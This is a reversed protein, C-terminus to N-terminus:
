EDSVLRLRVVAPVEERELATCLRRLAEDTIRHRLDSLDAHRGYAVNLRLRPRGSTGLLRARVNRVGPYDGIEAELADTVAKAPLRTGGERPEPELRLAHLRSSRAQALLWALGLLALVVAAATVAPWFWSHDGAYDRVRDSLVASSARRDGFAGLGRALAAAGPLALLLGFLILGTRNLHAPRRDM